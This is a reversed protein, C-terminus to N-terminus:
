SLPLDYARWRIRHTSETVDDPSRGGAALAARVAEAGARRGADDTRWTFSWLGDELGELFEGYRRRRVEVVEPLWRGPAGLERMAEDVQSIHNVGPHTMDIGAADCFTRQMLKWEGLGWNGVDVLFKGGPEVVRVLEALVERWAPILHLVHVGYAAGFSRDHFPLRTADGCVLPPAAGEANQHLRALMPRSLDLGHVDVGAASLPLAFRGTGVGIELVRGVADLEPVVGVLVEDMTEPLVARTRDYYEIARDFRISGERSM